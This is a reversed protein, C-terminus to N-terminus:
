EKVVKEFYVNGLNTLVKVVYIGSPFHSVDVVGSQLHNEVAVQNGLIGYLTIQKITEQRNNLGVYFKGTNPNPYVSIGRNPQQTEFQGEKAEFNKKAASKEMVENGNRLNTECSECPNIYARFESGREAHFGDRLVITKHATYESTAGMPITRWSAPYQVDNPVSILHTMTKPVNKYPAPSTNGLITYYHNYHTELSLTFDCYDQITDPYINIIARELNNWLYGGSDISDLTVWDGGEGWGWNFHFKDTNEDYGDCVFAHGGEFVDDEMAAYFVPLGNIINTKIIEKWRQLHMYRRILDADSSYHFSDVFANKAYHPWAFSECDSICYRIHISSGCDQILRSIAEKEARYYVSTTILEDPMNCWDYQNTSDSNLVPYKWFNMIQAMAVPICGAACNGNGCNQSVYYNYATIDQEDNSHDQNWETTLYPGYVSNLNNIFLRNDNFISWSSNITNEQREIISRICSAYKRVFYSLGYNLTDQFFSISDENINYGLIPIINKIGSVLVSCGNQYSVEYLMTISDKTYTSCHGVNSEEFNRDPFYSQMYNSAVRVAEAETVFTQAEGFLSLVAIEIIIIFLRRM